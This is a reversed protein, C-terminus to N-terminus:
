SKKESDNRIKRYLSELETITLKNNELDDAKLIGNEILKELYFQKLRNLANRLHYSM